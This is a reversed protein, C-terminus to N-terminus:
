FTLEGTDGPDADTAQLPVAKPAGVVASQAGIRALVPANNCHSIRVEGIMGRFLMYGGWGDTRRGICAANSNSVPAYTWAVGGELVGDVYVQMAQGTWRGLLHHWASDRLDTTGVVDGNGNAGAYISFRLRGGSVYLTYGQAPVGGGHKDVIAYYNATGTVKTWAEIEFRDSPNLALNPPIYVYDDAGDFSLVSAHESDTTWAPGNYLVGDLHNTTQDYLTTGGAEAFSWRGISQADYSAQLPKTDSEVNAPLPVLAYAPAEAACLTQVYPPTPFRQSLKLAFLPYGACYM